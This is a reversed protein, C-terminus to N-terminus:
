VGVCKPVPTGVERLKYSKLFVIEFSGAKASSTPFDRSRVGITDSPIKETANSSEMHGWGRLILVLISRTSLRGTRTASLRGGELASTVCDPLRLRGSCEPGMPSYHPHKGKVKCDWSVLRPVTSFRRVCYVECAVDSRSGECWM